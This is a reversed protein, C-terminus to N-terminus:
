NKLSEEYLKIIVSFKVVKRNLMIKDLYKEVSEFASNLLKERETLNKRKRKKYCIATYNKYCFAHHSAEKTILEDSTVALM